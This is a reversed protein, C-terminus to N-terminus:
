KSSMRKKAVLLIGAGIVLIGGVVYFITTGIGGTSPLLSGSQNIIDAQLTYNGLTIPASANQVSFSKEAKDFVIDFTIDDITNYGAPTKSEKLTYHGEGLGTFIIRGDSGVAATVTNDVGIGNEVFTKSIKAYKVYQGGKKIYDTTDIDPTTPDILTYQIKEQGDVIKRLGWYAGDAKEEFVEENILTIKVNEGNLTFEADTLIDGSENNKLIALETTYTNVEKEPTEGTPNKPNPGDPEDEGKGSNNPDNSYNVKVYNPNGTGIVADRNLEASYTLIVWTGPKVNTAAKLDHTWVQLLTGAKQTDTAIEFKTIKAKFTDTIDASNSSDLKNMVEAVDNALSVKKGSVIALDTVVTVKVGYKNGVTQDDSFSLGKSLTDAFELYYSDYDAYNEPLKVPITYNVTGGIPAENNKFYDKGEQGEPKEEEIYKDSETTGRKPAATVDGIIEMMYRTFEGNEDPVESNAVMYYGADLGSFTIYGNDDKGQSVKDNNTYSTTPLTVKGTTTDITAGTLCKAINSAFEKAKKSDFENSSDSIFAAVESATMPIKENNEGLVDNGSADKKWYYDVIKTEDVSAGWQINSLTKKDSDKSLDGKFIQFIVYSYDSTTDKITLTFNGTGAPTNTNDTTTDTPAEASTNGGTTNGTPPTASNNGGETAFVTLGMSLIMVMVLLLSALKKIRKM